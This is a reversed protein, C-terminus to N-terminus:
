QTENSTAKTEGNEDTPALRRLSAVQTTMSALLEKFKVEHRLNDFRPDFTLSRFDIWGEAMAGRLHDLAPNTHGLSAEIAAIRYLTEPHRPAVRLRQREQELAAELIQAGKKKNGSALDLYGLASEYSVAGYFYGGGKADTRALDAYLKKAEDFRHSFFCVQAMMQRAFGSEPFNRANESAIQEAEAFRGELLALRCLGMWGEPLDSHLEMTRRYAREAREDEGLDVWCDGIVFENDAPRAQLNKVIAHWYLAVDPRGLIKAISAVRGAAREEVGHLEIARFAEERAAQLDGKQELVNSLARHAESLRPDLEIAKRAAVEASSILGPEGGLFSRGILSMSLFAHAPGSAPDVLVAKKFCTIAQDCDKATRRDMLLRGVTLLEAAPGKSSTEDQSPAATKDRGAQSLARYLQPACDQFHDSWDAGSLDASMLHSGNGALDVVHISLLPNGNVLRKTGLLVTRTKERRAARSM